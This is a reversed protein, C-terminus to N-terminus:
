AESHLYVWAKAGSKLEVPVRHYDAGAEYDDAKALEAKTLSLVTGAVEDIASGTFEVNKHQSTGSLTVFAPNDIEVVTRRYGILVDRTGGLKRGFTSLQVEEQQLTGYSFLKETEATELNIAM